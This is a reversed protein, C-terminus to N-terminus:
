KKLYKRVKKQKKEKKKKIIMWGKINCKKNKMRIKFVKNMLFIKIKNRM